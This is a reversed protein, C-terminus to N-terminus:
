MPRPSVDKLFSALRAIQAEFTLQRARLLGTEIVRTRLDADAAIRSLADAAAAADGPPILVAADGVGDPVGGVATAVVPLAAAFAEILVQPFGETWSVHLLAHCSRYLDFLEDGMAVYGLMESADAVGLARLRAALAPELDGEGCVLLRWRPDRARLQALVDALLLPNKEQELRGVSLVRLESAYDRNTPASQLAVAPVLSVTLNLVAPAHSYKASLEHGVAVVPMGHAM